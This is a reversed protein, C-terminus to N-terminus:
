TLRAPNRILALSPFTAWSMGSNTTAIDLVFRMGFLVERVHDIYEGISWTNPLLRRGLDAPTLGAVIQEWQGPLAAIADL